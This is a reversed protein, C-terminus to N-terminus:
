ERCRHGRRDIRTRALLRDPLGSGNISAQDVWVAVADGRPDIAASSGNYVDKPGSLVGGLTWSDAAHAPLAAGCLLVLAIYKSTRM